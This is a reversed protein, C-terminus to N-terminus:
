AAVEKRRCDCMNCRLCFRYEYEKELIGNRWPGYTHNECYAEFSVNVTPQVIVEFGCENCETRFSCEDIGFDDANIEHGCSPCQCM